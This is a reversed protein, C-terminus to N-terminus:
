RLRAIYLAADEMKIIAGGFEENILNEIAEYQDASRGGGYTKTVAVFSAADLSREFPHHRVHFDDFRGGKQIPQLSKDVLDFRKPWSYGFVEALREEFPEQGWSVVETWILALHGGPELLQAAPDVSVGPDVWHWANFSTILQVREDSSYDEFRGVFIQAREALKAEALAAMEAAPEVATVALGRRVLPETAIGTGAGVELVKAGPSLGAIDIIDDFVSEPYRPRYRDYDLAQAAFRESARSAEQWPNPMCWTNGWAAARPRPLRLLQPWLITSYQGFSM